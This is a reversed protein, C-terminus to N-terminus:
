MDDGGGEVEEDLDAGGLSWKTYQVMPLAMALKASKRKGKDAASDRLGYQFVIRKQHVPLARFARAMRLVEWFPDGSIQSRWVLSQVYTNLRKDDARIEKPIGGHSHKVHRWFGEIKETGKEVRIRRQGHLGVVAFECAEWAPNDTVDHRGFATYQGRSHVVHDQVVTYGERRLHQCASRYADAGDTHLVVFNGFHKSLVPLVLDVTPLKPPSPKGNKDVPVFHPECMYLVTKTSGRKTLGLISHHWTGTRKKGGDPLDEYVKEKRVVTEDAEVQALVTASYM